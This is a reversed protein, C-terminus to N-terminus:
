GRPRRSAAPWLGFGPAGAAAAAPVAAGCPVLPSEAVRSAFCAWDPLAALCAPRACSVYLPCSCICIREAVPGRLHAPSRTLAACRLHFEKHVLTPAVVQCLDCRLADASAGDEAGAPGPPPPPAAALEAMALHRAHRKGERHSALQEESTARVDCVGCHLGAEEGGPRRPRARARRHPRRACRRRRRPPRGTRLPRHVGRAGCRVVRLRCAPSRM